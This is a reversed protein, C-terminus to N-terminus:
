VSKKRSVLYESFPVQLFIKKKKQGKGKREKQGDEKRRGEKIM